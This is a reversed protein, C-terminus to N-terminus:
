RAPREGGLKFAMRVLRKVAPREVDAVSRLRIFRMDKGGGELLGGDDELERGRYFYLTSHSSFTGLGAVNEGDISYRALKWMASPSKPPRSQYATEEANPAATKVAKRAAVLIPRVAPAVNKLHDAVTEPM